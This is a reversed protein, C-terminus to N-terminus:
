LGGVKLRQGDPIRGADIGADIVASLKSGEVGALRRERVELGALGDVVGDIAGPDDLEGAESGTLGGHRALHERGVEGAVLAIAGVRGAGPVPAQCPGSISFARRSAPSDPVIFM